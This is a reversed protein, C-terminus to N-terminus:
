SPRYYFAPLQPKKEKEKIKDKRKTFHVEAADSPVKNAVLVVLRSADPCGRSPTTEAAQM